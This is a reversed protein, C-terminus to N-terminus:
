WLLNVADVDQAGADHRHVTGKVLQSHTGLAYEHVAVAKERVMVDRVGGNDLTVTLHQANSGRRNEGLGVTILQHATQISLIGLITPSFVLAIGRGVVTGSNGAKARRGIMTM